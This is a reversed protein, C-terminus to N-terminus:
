IRGKSNTCVEVLKEMEMTVVSVNVITVGQLTWVLLLTAVVTHVM